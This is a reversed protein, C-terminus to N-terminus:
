CTVKLDVDPLAISAHLICDTDPCFKPPDADFYDACAGLLLKYNNHLIRRPHCCVYILQLMCIHTAVALHATHANKMLFLYIFLYVFKM